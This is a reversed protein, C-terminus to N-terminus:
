KGAEVSAYHQKWNEMAPQACENLMGFIGKDRFTGEVTCGGACDSALFLTLEDKNARFLFGVSGKGYPLIGVTMLGHYWNAQNSLVALLSQRAEADLLRLDKDDPRKATESRPAFVYVAGANKMFDAVAEDYPSLEAPKIPHSHTTVPVVVSGDLLMIIFSGNPPEFMEGFQLAYIFCNPPTDQPYRLEVQTVPLQSPQGHSAQYSRAKAVAQAASLPPESGPNWQSAQQLRDQSVRWRMEWGNGGAGWIEREQTATPEGREANCVVSASVAILIPLIVSHSM